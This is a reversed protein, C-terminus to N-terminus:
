KYRHTHEDLAKTLQLAKDLTMRQHGKHWAALTQRRIGTIRALKGYSNSPTAALADSILESQHKVLSLLASLVENVDKEKVTAPHSSAGEPRKCRVM